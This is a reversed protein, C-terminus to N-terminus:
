RFLRPGRRKRDAANEDGDPLEYLIGCLLGTVSVVGGATDLVTVHLDRGEITMRGCVTVLDVAREDFALVDTVGKVTFTKRDVAWLSHSKEQGAPIGASSKKQIDSDFSEM